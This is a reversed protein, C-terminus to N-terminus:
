KYIKVYAEERLQQLWRGWEESARKQFLSARAQQELAQRTKMQMNKREEVKLIHFGFKSRFPSSIKGVATKNMMDEFEPVMQGPVAWGLSGGSPASGRDQSYNRALSAFDAGQKLKQYLQLTLKEANPNGTDNILIHSVKTQPIVPYKTNDAKKALIKLIHIGDNDVIPTAYKNVPLDVLVQSFTAPIKGLEVWGLDNFKVDDYKAAVSNASQNTLQRMINEAKQQLKALTEQNAATPIRILLDTLHVKDNINKLQKDVLDAVELNSVNVTQRAINQQLKGILLKEYMAQKSFKKPSQKLALALESKSVSINQQQAAQMLLKKMILTQLAAERNAKPFTRLEKETITANDAIAVIRDLRNGIPENKPGFQLDSITQQALTANFLGLSLLLALKKM